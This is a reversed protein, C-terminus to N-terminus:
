NARPQATESDAWVSAGIKEKGKTKRKKHCLNVEEISLAPSAVRSEDMAPTSSGKEITEKEKEKEKDTLRLRHQSISSFPEKKKAKVRAYFEKNFKTTM